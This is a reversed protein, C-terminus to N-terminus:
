KLYLMKKTDTYEDATLRYVYIGSASETGGATQGSWDVSYRGAPMEKNILTVVEQGLLNFITLKVNSPRPLAFGITTTPNFPNPFNQELGFTEPLTTAPDDGIGAIISYSFNITRVTDPAEDITVVVQVPATRDPVTPPVITWDADFADFTYNGTAEDVPVMWGLSQAFFGVYTGPALPLLVNQLTGHVRCHQFNLLFGLGGSTDATLHISRNQPLTAYGTCNVSLFYTGTDAYITFIGNSDVTGSYNAGGNNWLVVFVSDSAPIPDGPDIQITDRIMTGSVYNLHATDGPRLNTRVSPQLIFGAPIPYLTDWTAVDVSWGSDFVSSIHLPVLNGNGTDSIAMTFSNDISSRASLFYRHAPNGGNETVLAYIVTDALRCVFNRQLGHVSSNDITYNGPATYSPILNDQSVGLWWEGLESPGFYIVYNGGVTQVDKNQGGGVQSAYVYVEMPLPDDNGDRVTGFVSDSPVMYDFDTLNVTGSAIATQRSPTVYGPIDAPDVSFSVGTGSAGINITYKGSDNTFASWMQGGDVNAEIWVWQLLPDPAPHGAVTIRGIFHNPPSPLATCVISKYTSTTDSLDTVRFIYQGPAIGLPMDATMFVGDPTPNIDPPPGDPNTDGDAISFSFVLKDGPDNIVGNTNIDYWIEWFLMAGVACNAGWALNDGQVMTTATTDGNVAFILHDTVALARTGATLSLAM